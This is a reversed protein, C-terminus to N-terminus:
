EVNQGENRAAQTMLWLYGDELMPESAVAEYSAPRKGLVRYRMGNQVQLTSVIRLDENPQVGATVITWVQGHAQEILAQPSGFFLERGQDLVAMQSCTQGIDEVIHTCLMVIRERALDALLNRLRVREAPDLGATSEDVILLRPEGLLAQAIGVRRKMGGSFAKLMRKGAEVLGVADLLAEIQRRRGTRNYLGKLIAVYDLFEVATLNDYLQLEQLLYGLVKRIASPAKNDTVDYGLVRATGSTPRILTALIRMLTTKGAGNPVLLGFIGSGIELDIGRLAQVQDSPWSSTKVWLKRPQRRPRVRLL